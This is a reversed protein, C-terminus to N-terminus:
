QPNGAAEDLIAATDDESLKGTVPLVNEHQFEAIAQQTLPDEDLSTIAADSGPSYGINRLRMRAGAVDTAAPLTSEVHLNWVLPAGYRPLYGEVRDVYLVVTAQKTLEPVEVDISGDPGTTGNEVVGAATFRYPTDKIPQAIDSGHPHVFVVKLHKTQPEEEQNESSSASSSASPSGSKISVAPSRVRAESSAGLEAEGGDLLLKASSTALLVQSVGGVGFGDSSLSFAAEERHVKTHDTGTIDVNEATLAFDSSAAVTVNASSLKIQDSTIEIFSSGCQLRLNQDARVVVRETATHFSSGDVFTTSSAKAGERTAVVHLNHHGQVTLGHDGRVLHLDDSTTESIAVGRVQRTSSGHIRESSNKTVNEVRDGGIQASQNKGILLTSNGGVAVIQEASVATSQAGGVTTTQAGRVTTTHADNVIEHLDKQAHIFVRELGQADEFSVENFGGGGPVTQSRMGSRTFRQPLPEPTPHTANYLSGAIVPRDPDGGLFAVVVEMGVRPLFQFGYGAGAWTSLVRIWCSSLENFQGARDWHFQVKVRGYADVYIAKGAPGVVIASENVAHRIRKPRSPRFAVSAPVWEFRNQYPKPPLGAGVVAHHLRARLEEEGYKRGSALDRLLAAVADLALTAEAGPTTPDIGTLDAEYAEHVVKVPVFAGPDFPAPASPFDLKFGPLMRMCTSEGAVLSTPARLQEILVRAHHADVDPKEYEGHHEYHELQAGLAMVGAAESAKDASSLLALPRRFDYDRVEVTQTGVSRAGVLATVADVLFGTADTRYSLALPSMGDAALGPLYGSPEDSFVLVETNGEVFPGGAGQGGVRLDDAEPDTPSSMVDGAISLGSGVTGIVGAAGTSGEAAGAVGSHLAGFGGLVAGVTGAINTPALADAASPTFMPVHEFFWFIGEEALIRGVFEYDTEEYQTCYVRRRYANSLSWRHPINSEALVLSTIEHAYMSQFIRTNKRLGLLWTRPRVTIRARFHGLEDRRPEVEVAAIIGFREIDAEHMKLRVVRGLLGEQAQAYGSGVILPDLSAVTISFSYLENLAEEGVIAGVQWRVTRFPGNTVEFHM